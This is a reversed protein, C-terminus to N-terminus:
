LLHIFQIIHLFVTELFFTLYNEENNYKIIMWSINIPIFQNCIKIQLNFYLRNFIFM